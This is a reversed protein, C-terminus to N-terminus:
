SLSLYEMHLHQHFTAVYPWHNEVSMAITDKIELEIHYIQYTRNEEKIVEEDALTVVWEGKKM